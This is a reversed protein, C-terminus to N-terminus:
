WIIPSDNWSKFPDYSHEARQYSSTCWLWTVGQLWHCSKATKDTINAICMDLDTPQELKSAEPALSDYLVDTPCLHLTNQTVYLPCRGITFRRRFHIELRLITKKIIQLAPWFTMGERVYRQALTATFTDLYNLTMITRKKKHSDMSTSWWVACFLRQKCSSAHGQGIGPHAYSEERFPAM